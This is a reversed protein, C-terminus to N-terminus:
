GLIAIALPMTVAALLVTATVHGAMLEADGGMEKALVYSVSAGPTAGAAVLVTISLPDLGLLHGAAWCMVPMVALKMVVAASLVLPRARVAGLDLGAGVCMLATVLGAGGMLDLAHFLPGGVPLHLGNWAAGSLSGLILPNTALRIVFARPSPAQGTGWVSLVAVSMVNVLPVIPAFVLAALAAGEEGFLAPAAALLIIGNWRVSGQFFSTYSPGDVQRMVLRAALAVAGTASFGGIVALSFAGANLSEFDAKAILTFLMAPFLAWYGVRNVGAWQDRAIVGTRRAAWGAAIIVFAPILAAFTATM